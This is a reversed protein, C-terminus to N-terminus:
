ITGQAFRRRGFQWGVLGFGTLLMMWTAPEPVSSPVLPSNGIGASFDLSYPGQDSVIQFYPDALADAIGTGPESPGIPNQKAVGGGAAILVHYLTNSMLPVTTKENFTTPFSGCVTTPKGYACAHWQDFYGTADGLGITIGASGDDSGFTSGFVSVIVNVPTPTPSGGTIEMYYLIQGSGAALSNNASDTFAVTPIPGGSLSVNTSASGPSGNVMGTFSAVGTGPAILEPFIPNSGAGGSGEYTAAPLARVDNPLICALALVAVAIRIPTSM